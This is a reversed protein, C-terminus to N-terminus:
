PQGTRARARDAPGERFPVAGRLGPRKRPTYEEECTATRASRWGGARVLTAPPKKTSGAARGHYSRPVGFLRASTVRVGRWGGPAPTAPGQWQWARPESGRPSARKAVRNKRSRAGRGAVIPHTRGGAVCRNQRVIGLQRRSAQGRFCGRRAIGGPARRPKKNRRCTARGLGNREVEGLNGTFAPPPKGHRPYLCEECCPQPVASGRRRPM